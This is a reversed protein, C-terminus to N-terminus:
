ADRAPRIATVRLRQDGVPVEDGPKAGLLRQGLDSEYSVVGDEPRSDWPGLVAFSRARGDAGALDVRAGIRVESPDLRAFDIPRARSLDRHLAAVRANLYEHRQRAAKYEFNERLDGLARAEEIAKRNAPIEVETLRRLEARKEAIAQETAYLPGATAAEGLAPFRLRLAAALADRQYPELGTARLLPELAAPAQEEPLQALLRPLTGGSDALPRLRSRYPAFEEAGLAALLQQALRLPARARLAGDQAAREALWVFAAPAKRPQAVLDDLLREAAARDGSALGDAVFSLVRPETERLFQERFLAPWDERRERVMALARERLLRDEITDLLRRVDAGPAVLRDALEALAPPLFGARELAFYLEWALGPESEAAEGALSALDGALEGALERDRELNKKFIEMKPRPAARAFSTRVADLAGSTSAEWRYSQRGSGAAVVQPHRRAASWFASWQSEAVAGALAERIETATLPREATELLARLIEAPRDRCLAAFREPEELKTRLPHGPPLPKLMKAAARFGLTVGSRREFDIKLTELALNVEVVRGVGQGQMAVVEGVDYVLLSQLRTARDWLKVPDDVHKALGVHAVMSEFSPHGPHLAELAAVVERQLKAPKYLLAGVKRLADLRVAHLGRAALESEWLEGLSRAREIEGEAALALLTAVFWAADGPDREVEAIWDDELNGATDESRYEGLSRRSM